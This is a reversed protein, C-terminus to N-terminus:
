MHDRSAALTFNFILKTLVFIQLSSIEKGLKSFSGVHECNKGLM